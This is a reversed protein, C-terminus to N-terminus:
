QQIELAGTYFFGADSLQEPSPRLSPPWLRFSRRRLVPAAFQPFAPTLALSIAECVLGSEGGGVKEAEV